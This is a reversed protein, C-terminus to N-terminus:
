ECGLRRCWCWCSSSPSAWSPSSRAGHRRIPFFPSTVPNEFFVFFCPKFVRTLMDPLPDEGQTQHLMVFFLLFWCVCEGGLGVSPPPPMASYDDGFGGGGAAATKPGKCKNCNMRFAFNTNGCGNCLWDGDRGGGPAPAGGGFGGGAPAAGGARAALM